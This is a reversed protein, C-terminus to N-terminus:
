KGGKTESEARGFGTVQIFEVNTPNFESIKTIGVYSAASSIAAYIMDNLQDTTEERKSINMRVGEPVLNSVKGKTEIQFEKSAQGRHESVSIDSCEAYMKGLMIHTAGAGLYKAIDGFESIGGDAVIKSQKAWTAVEAVASLNPVGVGTVLRTSCISGCGIGVRIFDCWESVAIAAEGTAVSGSMIHMVEPMSRLKKYVEEAQESWGHAIDVLINIKYNRAKFEPIVKLSITAIDDLGIAFFCNESFERQYNEESLFRVWKDFHARCTVYYQKESLNGKILKNKLFEFSTVTDMPANFLIKRNEFDFDSRSKIKGKYPLMLVDRTTLAIDNKLLNITKM